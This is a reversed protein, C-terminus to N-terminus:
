SQEKDNPYVGTYIVTQGEQDTDAVWDKPYGWEEGSWSMSHAMNTPSNEELVDIIRSVGGAIDSVYPEDDSDVDLVIMIRM